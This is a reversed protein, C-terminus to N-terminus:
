DEGIKALLRRFAVFGARWDFSSRPAASGVVTLFIQKPSDTHTGSGALYTWLARNFPKPGGGAETAIEAAPGARGHEDRGNM